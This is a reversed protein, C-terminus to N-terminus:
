NNASNHQKPVVQKKMSHMNEKPPILFALKIYDVLNDSPLFSLQAM